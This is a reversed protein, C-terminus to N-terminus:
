NLTLTRTAATPTKTSLTIPHVTVDSGSAVEITYKGDQLDSLDFQFHFSGEKKGVLQKGLLAGDLTKLSILMFQGPAREVYVNLKSASPSPFVAVKYSATIATNTPNKATTAATSVLTATSLLLATLLSQALTKM